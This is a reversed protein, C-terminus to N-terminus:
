IPKLAYCKNLRTNTTPNQPFCSRAKSVHNKKLKHLTSRRPLSVRGCKTLMIKRYNTHLRLDLCLFVVLNQWCSKKTTQTVDFASAFFCLWLKTTRFCQVPTSLLWQPARFCQVPTSLFSQPARFFAFAHEPAVQTDSFMACAREPATPNSSFM